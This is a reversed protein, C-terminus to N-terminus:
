FGLSTRSMVAAHDLGSGGGSITCDTKTAGANDVCSISTGIFNVTARQTLSTGEDQVTAYGSGGGGSVTITGVVGSRACSVGTGVCDLKKVGGQSAGEDRLEIVPSSDLSDAGSIGPLGLCALALALRLLLSRM